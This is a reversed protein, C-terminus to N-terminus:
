SILVLETASAEQLLGGEGSYAQERITQKFWNIWKTQEHQNVIGWGYISIKRVWQNAGLQGGLWHL